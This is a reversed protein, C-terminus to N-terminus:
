GGGGVAHIGPATDVAGAAPAGLQDRLRALADPDRREAASLGVELDRAVTAPAGRLVLLRDALGVAEDLSHTVFLITAGTRSAITLLLQRLDAATAEDLSAFPEDMLLFDPEVCFARALAVRRAMGMSLQRPYLPGCAPLGVRDLWTRATERAADKPLVLTINTLVTRWPLLRPEQFMYGIVPDRGRDAGNLSTREGDFQGDLGAAINLLTTKGCGSPGTIALFQGAPVSLRFDEFVTRVDGGPRVFRKRAIHLDLATM